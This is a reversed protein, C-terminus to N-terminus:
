RKLDDNLKQLRWELDYLMDTLEPIRNQFAIIIKGSLWHGCVPAYRKFDPKPEAPIRSPGFRRETRNRINRYIMRYILPLDAIKFDYLSQLTDAKKKLEWYHNLFGNELLYHKMDDYHPSWCCEDMLDPTCIRFWTVPELRYDLGEYQLPVWETETAIETHINYLCSLLKSKISIPITISSKSSRSSFINEWVKSVYWAFYYNFTGNIFPATNKYGLKGVAFEVEKQTPRQPLWLEKQSGSLNQLEIRTRQFLWETTTWLKLITNRNKGFSKILQKELNPNIVEGSSLLDFEQDNHGPQLREFRENM